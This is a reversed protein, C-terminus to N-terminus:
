KINQIEKLAEQYYNIMEYGDYIEPKESLGGDIYVAYKTIFITYEPKHLRELLDIKGQTDIMACQKEHKINAQVESSGYENNWDAHPKFKNVLEIAYEKPSQTM